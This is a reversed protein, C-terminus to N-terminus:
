TNIAVKNRQEPLAKGCCISFSGAATTSSPTAGPQLRLSPPDLMPGGHRNFNRGDLVPQFKFSTNSRGEGMV